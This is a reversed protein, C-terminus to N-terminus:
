TGLPHSATNVGSGTQVCRLLAFGRTAALVRVGITQNALGYGTMIGVSSDRSRPHEEQYTSCIERGVNKKMEEITNPNSTYINGM